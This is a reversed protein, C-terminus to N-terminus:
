KSLSKYTPCESFYKECYQIKIETKASSLADRNYCILKERPPIGVMVETEWDYLKQLTELTPCGKSLYPCVKKPM